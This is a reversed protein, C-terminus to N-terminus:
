RASSSSRTSASRDGVKGAVHQAVPVLRPDVDLALPEPLQPHVPELLHGLARERFPTSASCAASAAADASGSRSLAWRSTM